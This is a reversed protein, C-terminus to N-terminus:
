HFLRQRIKELFSKEFTDPKGSVGWLLLVIATYVIAGLAIKLFLMQWDPLLIFNSIKILILFMAIGSVVPRWIVAVIRSFPVQCKSTVLFSIFFFMLMTLFVRSYAVGVIGALYYAPYIAILAVAAQVWQVY